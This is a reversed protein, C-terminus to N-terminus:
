QELSTFEIQFFIRKSGFYVNIGSESGSLASSDVAISFQTNSLKTIIQGAKRNIEDNILTNGSDSNYVYVLDGTNLMFNTPNQIAFLTPNGYTITFIGSDADFIENLFPTRFQITITDINKAMPKRFHFKNEKPYLYM